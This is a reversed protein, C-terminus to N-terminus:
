DSKYILGKKDSVLLDCLYCDEDISNKRDMYLLCNWSCFSAMFQKDQGVEGSKYLCLVYACEDDVAVCLRFM